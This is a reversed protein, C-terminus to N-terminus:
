KLTRRIKTLKRLRANRRRNKARACQFCEGSLAYRLGIHRRPCRRASYYFTHGCAIAEDRTEAIIGIRKAAHDAACDFDFQCPHDTRM